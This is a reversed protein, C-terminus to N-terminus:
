MIPSLIKVILSLIEGIPSILIGVDASLTEVIPSLIKLIPSVAEVKQPVSQPSNWRIDSHHFPPSLLQPKKKEGNKVTFSWRIKGGKLGCRNKEEQSSSSKKLEWFPCTGSM